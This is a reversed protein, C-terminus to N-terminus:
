NPFIRVWHAAKEQRPGSAVVTPAMAREPFVLLSEGGSPGLVRLAPWPPASAATGRDRGVAENWALPGVGNLIVQPVIGSTKAAQAKPVLAAIM